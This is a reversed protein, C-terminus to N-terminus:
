WWQYFFTKSSNISWLSVSNHSQNMPYLKMWGDYVWYVSTWLMFRSRDVSKTWFLWLLLLLNTQPSLCSLIVFSQNFQHRAMSNLEMVLKFFLEWVFHSSNVMWLVWLSRCHNDSVKVETKLDELLVHLLGRGEQQHHKLEV